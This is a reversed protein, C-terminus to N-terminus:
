ENKAPNGEEENGQPNERVGESKPSTEARIENSVGGEQANPESSPINASEQLQQQGLNHSGGGTTIESV